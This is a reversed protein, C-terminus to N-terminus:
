VCTCVCLFFSLLPPRSVRCPHHPTDACTSIIEYFDVNFQSLQRKPVHIRTRWGCSKDYLTM